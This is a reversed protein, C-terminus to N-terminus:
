SIKLSVHEPFPAQKVLHVPWIHKIPPQQDTNDPKVRQPRSFIVAKKCINEFM